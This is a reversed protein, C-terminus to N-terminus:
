GTLLCRVFLLSGSTTVLRDVDQTIELLRVIECPGGARCEVWVSQNHEDAVLDKTAPTLDHDIGYLRADFNLIFGADEDVEGDKVKSSSAAEDALNNSLRSVDRDMRWATGVRELEEFTNSEVLPSVLDAATSTNVQERVDLKIEISGTYRSVNKVYAAWQAINRTKNVIICPERRVEEKCVAGPLEVAKNFYV